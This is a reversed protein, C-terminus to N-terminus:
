VEYMPGFSNNEERPIINRGGTARQTELTCISRPASAAMAPKEPISDSAVSGDGVEVFFEKKAKKRRHALFLGISLMVVVIGIALETGVTSRGTGLLSASSSNNPQGSTTPPISPADVPEGSIKPLSDGNAIVSDM